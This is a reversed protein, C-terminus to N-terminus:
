EIDMISDFGVLAFLEKVSEQVNIIKMTGHNANM